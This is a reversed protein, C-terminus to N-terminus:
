YVLVHLVVAVNAHWTIKWNKHGNRTWEFKQSYFLIFNEACNRRDFSNFFSWRSSSRCYTVLILLSAAVSGCECQEHYVSLDTHKKTTWGLVVCSFLHLITALNLSIDCQFLCALAVFQASMCFRCSLSRTIIIRLCCCVVVIAISYIAYM